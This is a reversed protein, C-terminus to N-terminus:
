ARADLRKQLHHMRTHVDPHSDLLRAIVGGGSPEPGVREHENRLVTLLEPAFGLGAAHEDARLESRRQVAAALYPTLLPLFILGYTAAALAMVAAAGLGVALATAGTSLRDIRGALRRLLRWALRGPLGYWHILLAAWAHGRIHHGLEHALVGALQAHSLAGLSHSTVGVIHSAAALANVSDSEEVWLQYGREDVGARAAVEHWVARLKRNEELTPHRLDYLWRAIVRECPQHFAVAGSLLWCALSAWWPPAFLADVVYSLSFVVATSALIEPLHLALRGLTTLDVGRQRASIHIRGPRRPLDDDGPAPGLPAAAKPEEGNWPMSM